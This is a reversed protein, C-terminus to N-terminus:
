AQLRNKLRRPLLLKWPALALNLLPPRAYLLAEWLLACNRLAFRKGCNRGEVLYRDILSHAIRLNVKGFSRQRLFLENLIKPSIDILRYKDLYSLFLYLYTSAVSGSSWKLIQDWDLKGSKNNWLYIMDLFAVMGGIFKFDRAWHSAIYVVQLEDSLRTVKRGQFESPRLQTKVNEPSFVNDGGLGSKASVLGRHVEVWIGRQSHFFPMSHHHKQWFAHPIQSQQRYGLALLITEVSPLAANEVLFDIDRMTRLHPQPYYQRCISIGKLLTLPPVRGECADVIECMADLHEATLMRATLDAGQLLPRLQSSLEGIGAKMTYFLLPGLGTEIIWRIQAEDFIGLTLNGQRQSAARLLSILHPERKAIQRM